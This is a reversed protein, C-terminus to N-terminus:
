LVRVEMRWKRGLGGGVESCCPFLIHKLLVWVLTFIGVLEKIGTLIKHKEEHLELPVLHPLM